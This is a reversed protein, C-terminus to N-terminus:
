WWWEAFPQYDRQRYLAKFPDAGSHLARQATFSNNGSMVAQYGRSTTMAQGNAWARQPISACANLAAAVALALMSRGIM